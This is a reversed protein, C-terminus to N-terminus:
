SGLLDRLDPRDGLPDEPGQQSVMRKARSAVGALADPHPFIYFRDHEIAEFTLAAVEAATVTSGGIAAAAITAAVRQSPTAPLGTPEEAPRNRSSNVIGTRVYSPCLVSAGLRAKALRLDLCLTETLSVVAHKSAGYAGMLPVSLVGAISSTNVIHGEYSADHKAADVMAPVFARIGHIVGRLNVGLVWDWDKLSCEWLFGGVAVGANNFLLHPVGFRARTAGSLADVNDPLSVDTVMALVDAGAAVLEDRARQLADAQVDALVLRMKRAAAVRAIELGFGSGAGTIVATRGAFTRM